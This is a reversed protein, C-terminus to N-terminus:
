KSRRCHFVCSSPCPRRDFASALAPVELPIEGNIAPRENIALRNGENDISYIQPVDENISMFKSADCELEYDASAQENLVIRTADSLTDSAIEINFIFRERESSNRRSSVVQSPRNVTPEIQRGSPQLVINDVADPKQVFFGQMPRLVFDDDAISYAKYTNGNWVTIPATFDM